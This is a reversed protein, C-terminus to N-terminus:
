CDYKAYDCVLSTKLPVNKDTGEVKSYEIESITEILEVTQEESM